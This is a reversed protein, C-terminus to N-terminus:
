KTPRGGRRVQALLCASHFQDSLNRHESTEFDQNARDRGRRPRERDFILTFDVSFPDFHSCSVCRNEIYNPPLQALCARCRGSKPRFKGVEHKQERSSSYKHVSAHACLSCCVVHRATCGLCIPQLQRRRLSPGRACVAAAADAAGAGASSGFTGCRKAHACAHARVCTCLFAPFPLTHMLIGGDRMRTCVRCLYTCTVHDRMWPAASEKPRIARSWSSKPLQLEEGQPEQRGGGGCQGGRQHM